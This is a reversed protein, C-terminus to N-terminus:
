LKKTLYTNNKIKLFNPLGKLHAALAIYGYQAALPASMVSKALLNRGWRDIIVIPIAVKSALFISKLVGLTYKYANRQKSTINVHRNYIGLWTQDM